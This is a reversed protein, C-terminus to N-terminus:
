LPAAVTCTPPLAKISIQLEGPGPPPVELDEIRLVEPGGLKHFRIVRAM